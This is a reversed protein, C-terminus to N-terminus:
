KAKLGAAVSKAVMDGIETAVQERAQKVADAIEASLAKKVEAAVAQTLFTGKDRSYNDVPANIAKRAEDIILDRLTVPEGVPEGYGNTKQVPAAIVAEVQPRVAERIVEARITKVQELLTPYGRDKVVREVIQAAVLDAVTQPGTVPTDREDDWGIVEAVATSLSIEDVNITINM